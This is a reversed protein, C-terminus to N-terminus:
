PLDGRKMDLRHAFRIIGGLMLKDTGIFNCDRTTSYTKEINM